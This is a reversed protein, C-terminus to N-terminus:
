TTRALMPRGLREECGNFQQLQRVLGDRQIVLTAIQADLSRSRAGWFTFDDCYELMERETRLAALRAEIAALAESM